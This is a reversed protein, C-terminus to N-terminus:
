PLFDFAIKFSFANLLLSFCTVLVLNGVLFYKAFCQCCTKCRLFCAFILPSRIYEFDICFASFTFCFNFFIHTLFFYHDLFFLLNTQWPFTKFFIFCWSIYLTSNKGGNSFSGFILQNEISSM